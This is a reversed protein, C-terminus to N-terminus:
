QMDSASVKRLLQFLKRAAAPPQHLEQEKRAQRLLQNLLQVDIESHAAVYAALAEKGGSLLADRQQELLHFRRKALNVNQNLENHIRALTTEDLDRMLKGIFQLQRRQAGHKNPLAQYEGLADVLRPPLECRTLASASLTTLEVGLDQLASMDRKRQSKSNPDPAKDGEYKENM